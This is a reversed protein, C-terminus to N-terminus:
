GGVLCFVAAIGVDHDTTEMEHFVRFVRRILPPLDFLDRLLQQLMGRQKIGTVAGTHRGIFLHLFDHSVSKLINM